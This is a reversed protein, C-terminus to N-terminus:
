ARGGEDGPVAINVEVEADCATIGVVQEGEQLGQGYYGGAVM